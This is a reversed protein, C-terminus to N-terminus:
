CAGAAAADDAVVLPVEQRCCHVVFRDTLLCCMAYKRYEQIEKITM